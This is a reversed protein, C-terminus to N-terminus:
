DDDSAEDNEAVASVPLSFLTSGSRAVLRRGGDAFAIPYYPTIYSADNVPLFPKAHGDRDVLHYHAGPAQNEPRPVAVAVNSGDPAAIMPPFTTGRQGQEPKRIRKTTFINLKESDGDIATVRTGLEGDSYGWVIVAAVRLHLLEGQDIFVFQDRINCKGVPGQRGTELDIRFATADYSEHSDSTRCVAFREEDSWTLDVNHGAPFNVEFRKAIRFQEDVLVLQCTDIEIGLFRGSTSSPSLRDYPTVRPRAAVVDWILPAGYASAIVFKRDATVHFSTEYEQAAGFNGEIVSIEKVDGTLSAHMVHYAAVRTGEIRKRVTYVVGDQNPTWALSFVFHKDLHVPGYFARYGPNHPSAASQARQEQNVPEALIATITNPLDVLKAPPGANVRCVWLAGRSMYAIQKGDRSIASSHPNAVDWVIDPDLVTAGPPLDAAQTDAGNWLGALLLAFAVLKGPM